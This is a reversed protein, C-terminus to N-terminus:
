EEDEDKNAEKPLEVDVGDLFFKVFLDDKLEDLQEQTAEKLKEELQETAESSYDFSTCIYNGYVYFETGGKIDNVIDFSLVEDIKNRAQQLIYDYAVYCVDIKNLDTGTSEAFERVEDALDSGDKDVEMFAEVATAVDAHGYDTLGNLFRSTQYDIKHQKEEETLEKM